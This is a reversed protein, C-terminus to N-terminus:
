SAERKGRRYEAMWDNRAQRCAVCPPEKHRQHAMYGATTGCVATRRHQLRVETAPLEGRLRRRQKASTAGWIGHEEHLGDELCPTQVPCERCIAKPTAADGGREPFFLEPDMGRCLAFQRWGSM